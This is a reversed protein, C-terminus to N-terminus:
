IAVVVAGGDRGQVTALMVVRRRSIRPGIRMAIHAAADDAPRMNLSVESQALRERGCVWVGVGVGVGVCVRTRARQPREQAPALCM